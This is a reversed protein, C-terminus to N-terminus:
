HFEIQISFHHIKHLFTSIKILNTTFIFKKPAQGARSNGDTRNQNQLKSVIKPHGLIWVNELRNTDYDGVNLCIMNMKMKLVEPNTVHCTKSEFGIGPWESHNPIMRFREFVNLLMQVLFRFTINCLVNSLRRIKISKFNHFHGNECLFHRNEASNKSFNYRDKQDRPM